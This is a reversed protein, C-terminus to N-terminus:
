LEYTVDTILQMLVREKMGTNNEKACGHAEYSNSMGASFEM